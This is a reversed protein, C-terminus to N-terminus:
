ERARPRQERVLADIVRVSGSILLRDAQERSISLAQAIGNPGLKEYHYLALALRENKGMTALTERIVRRRVSPPLQSAPRKIITRKRAHGPM